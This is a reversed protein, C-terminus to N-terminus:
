RVDDRDPLWLLSLVSNATPIAHTSELLKVHSSLNVAGLWSTPDVRECQPNPSEGNHVCGAVTRGDLRTGNRAHGCPWGKSPVSWRIIGEVACVLLGPERTVELLRWAAATISVDYASPQALRSAVRFALDCDKADEAFQRRPMLLEVAFRNAERELEYATGDRHGHVDLESCPFGGRSHRPLFYHAMEHAVSFRRRGRDLGAQLLIGSIGPGPVLAAVFGRVNAPAEAIVLGDAKALAEVDIARVSELGRQQRYLKALHAPQYSPPHDLPM